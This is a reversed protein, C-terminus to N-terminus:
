HFVQLFIRGKVEHVKEVVSNWGQIQDENWIGCSGPFANSVHSIASCETLVLGSHEARESYYKKHLDTSVGLKPDARCRTMAAMLIRNKLEYSGLKIPKFLSKSNIAQSFYKRM